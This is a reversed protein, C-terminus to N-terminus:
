QIRKLLGVEKETLFRWRGRQLNKKTLGAFSVRDLKLVKYGLAEFMRRVVRNKGSHLELGIQKKDAGDGVYTIQDAKAIGDELDVGESLKILHAKTVKKDTFLHYIKRAGHKPHTLKKTMEGDNTLLLLGTTNRDLRGVPYIREKCANHVLYLVTKRKQPDDMTTIYDKPKNLLVYMPKEGRLTQGGYKVTDTPKIKTGLQTVVSGNVSFVGSEILKDAERRSCIGANAIFKNLRISNAPQGSLDPSSSPKQSHTQKKRKM